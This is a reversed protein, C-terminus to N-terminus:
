KNQELTEIQNQQRIVLTVIVYSIPINLVFTLVMAIIVSLPMKVTRENKEFLINKDPFVVEIKPTSAFSVKLEKPFQQNDTLPQPTFQPSVIPKPTPEVKSITLLDMLDEFQEDNYQPYREKIVTKARDIAADLDEEQLDSEQFINKADPMFRVFVDYKSADNKAIHISFDEFLKGQITQQGEFIGSVGKSSLLNHLSFAM